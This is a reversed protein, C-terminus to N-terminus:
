RQRESEATVELREALNDTLYHARVLYKLVQVVDEQGLFDPFRGRFGEDADSSWTTRGRADLLEAGGAASLHLTVPIGTRRM